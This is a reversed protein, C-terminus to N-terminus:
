FVRVRRGVYRQSPVFALVPLFVFPLVLLGITFPVGHGFLKALDHLLLIVFVLGICPVITVVGFWWARGSLVGISVFNLVPVIGTWGQQGM